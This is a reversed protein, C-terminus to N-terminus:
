NHTPPFLFHFGKRAFALFPRKIIFSLFSILVLFQLRPTLNLASLLARPAKESYIRVAKKLADAFVIYAADFYGWGSFPFHRRNM